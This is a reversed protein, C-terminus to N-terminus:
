LVEIVKTKAQRVFGDLKRIWAKRNSKWYLKDIGLLLAYNKVEKLFHQLFANGVRFMSPHISARIIEMHKELPNWSGWAIALLQTEENLIVINWYAACSNLFPCWSLYEDYTYGFKAVFGEPVLEFPTNVRTVLKSFDEVKEKRHVM